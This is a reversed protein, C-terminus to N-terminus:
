AVLRCDIPRASLANCRFFSPRHRYKHQAHLRSLDELRKYLDMVVGSLHERANEGLTQYDNSTDTRADGLLSRDILVGQCRCVGCFTVCSTGLELKLKDIKKCCERMCINMEQTTPIMITTLLARVQRKRKHPQPCPPTRVEDIEDREQDTMRARKNAFHRHADIYDSAHDLLYRRMRKM